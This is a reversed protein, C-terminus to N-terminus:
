TPTRIVFLLVQMVMGYCIQEEDTEQEPSSTSSTLQPTMDDTPWHQIEVQPLFLSADNLGYDVLPQDIRTQYYDPSLLDVTYDSWSTDNLM